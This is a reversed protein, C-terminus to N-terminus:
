RGNKKHIFIHIFIDILTLSQFVKRQESEYWYLLSYLILEVFLLNLYHYNESLIGGLHMSFQAERVSSPYFGLKEAIMFAVRRESLAACVCLWCVNHGCICQKYLFICRSVGRSHM